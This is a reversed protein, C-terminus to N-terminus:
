QAASQRKPVVFLALLYVIIAPVFGTMVLILIWFLRLLVSDVEFYEALGGIIGAVIKDDDSRYLKKKAM